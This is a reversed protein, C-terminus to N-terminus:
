LFMYKAGCWNIVLPCEQLHGDFIASVKEILNVSINYRTFENPFTSRLNCSLPWM